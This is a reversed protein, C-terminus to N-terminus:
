FGIVKGFEDFNLKSRVIVCLGFRVLFDVFDCWYNICVERGVFNVM